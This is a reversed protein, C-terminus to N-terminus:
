PDARFRYGPMTFPDHVLKIQMGTCFEHFKGNACAQDINTLQTLFVGIMHYNHGQIGPIIAQGEL